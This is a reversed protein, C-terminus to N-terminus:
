YAAMVSDDISSSIPLRKVETQLENGKVLELQTELTPASYTTPCGIYRYPHCASIMMVTLIAVIVGTRIALHTKM